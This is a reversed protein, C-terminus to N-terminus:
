GTPAPDDPRGLISRVLQRITESPRLGLEDHLLHRYTEYQRLAEGPNHEALHIEIVRRHASERLSEGAVAALAAQLAEAFRGATRLSISLAELAHLRSQRHREREVMIWDDDWSPLVDSDLLFLVDDTLASEEPGSSTQGPPTRLSRIHVDCAWVDVDVHESLGLDTTSSSTLSQGEPHPLRTLAARLNASAQPAASSPWLAGAIRARPMPRRSLSLFALLRQGGLPVEVACGDAIVAFDGLLQVRVGATPPIKPLRKVTVRWFHKEPSPLREPQM